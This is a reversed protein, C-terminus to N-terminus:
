AASGFPVVRRAGLEMLEKEISPRAGDSAGVAIWYQDVAAGQLVGAEDVAAWLSGLRARLFFGLVTALAGFLITLEFTVPIFAPASHLPRGGVNLPFDVATIWWQGLYGTLAGLIGGALTFRSLTSRPTGLATDIGDVPHPTYADLDAHGSRRLAGLAAVLRVPEAFEALVGERM